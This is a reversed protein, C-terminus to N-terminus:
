LAPHWTIICYGDGTRDVSYGGTTGSIFGSGIHGSGGGGAGCCDNNKSIYETYAGGGYWGGGGGGTGEECGLGGHGSAGDQGLGFAYGTTQTGPLAYTTNDTAGSPYCGEGSLGGGSGGSSIWFCGGGGGGAVIIIENRNNIYNKLIGRDATAIHTAGGGGAAPVFDGHITGGGAGGGNYGGASGKDFLGRDTVKAGQGGVCIYVKGQSAISKFGCSYGGKGGQGNAHNGSAEYADLCGGQAGWVELKYSINLPATFTQVNGTHKHLM